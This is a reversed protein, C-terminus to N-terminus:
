GDPDTGRAGTQFRFAVEQVLGSTASQLKERFKVELGHLAEEWAPDEVVITLKGDRFRDPRCALALSEGLIGKWAGELCAVVWEAHHPTGEYIRYLLRSIPEM